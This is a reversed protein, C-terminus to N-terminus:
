LIQKEFKVHEVCNLLDFFKVLFFQKLVEEGLHLQKYNKTRERINAM